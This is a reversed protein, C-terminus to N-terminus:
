EGPPITSCAFLTQVFVVIFSALGSFFVFSLKWIMWSQGGGWFSPGRRDAGVVGHHGLLILNPISLVLRHLFQDPFCDPLDLAQGSTLAVIKDLARALWFQNSPLYDGFNGNHWAILLLILDMLVVDIRWFCLLWFQMAALWCGIWPEAVGFIQDSGSSESSQDARIKTRHMPLCSPM